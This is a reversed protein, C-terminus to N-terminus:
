RPARLCWLISGDRGVGAIQFNNRRLVAQSALNHKDTCALVTAIRAEFLRRVLLAVAATALGRGQWEPVLGYGIEVSGDAGPPRHCGVTGVVTEMFVVQHPSFLELAEGSARTDSLSREVLLECLERDAQTPYGPSWEDSRRNRLVARALTLDIPRLVVRTPESPPAATTM